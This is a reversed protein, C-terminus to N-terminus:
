VIGSPPYSLVRNFNGQRLDFHKRFMRKAIVVPNDGPNLDETWEGPLPEGTDDCLSVTDGNKVFWGIDVRGPFKRSPNPQETVIRIQTPKM